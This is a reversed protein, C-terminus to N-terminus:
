HASQTILAAAAEGIMVSPANTNGSTVAPMISADAVRLGDIGRVRLRPDVVADADVGMKCTGVQHFATWTHERIYAILTRDDDVAPGPYLERAGWGRLAAASGIERNLRVAAIMTELDVTCEYTAPDISPASEPDSSALRLRGRSVPRVLTAALTLGQPPGHMGDRYVPESFM